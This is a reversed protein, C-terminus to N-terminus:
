SDGGPFRVGREVAPDSGVPVLVELVKKLSVDWVRPVGQARGRPLSSLRREIAPWEQDQDRGKGQIYDSVM